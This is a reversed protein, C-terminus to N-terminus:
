ETRIVVGMVIQELSWVGYETRIVVGGDIVVCEDSMYHVFFHVLFVHTCYMLSRAHDM